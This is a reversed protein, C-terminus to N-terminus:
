FITQSLLFLKNSVICFLSASNVSISQLYVSMYEENGGISLTTNFYFACTGAFMSLSHAM